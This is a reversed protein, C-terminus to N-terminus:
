NQIKSKPNQIALAKAMERFVGPWDGPRQQRFLRMTPYWPTDARDVLWRWDPSYNLALWVPAALAGALHAVATDVAIVLDLNRIIAATDMFAGSFEDVLGGFSIVEFPESGRSQVKSKPSQVKEAAAGKQLSILRVGPVRALPEFEELTASRHRDWPHRANGQWAIGVRFGRIPALQRRWHEILELDAWLYPVEGPINHERTGLILPLSMLPAQVDFKPPAAGQAILQDIGPCTALIPLLPKQCQVIVRGGFTKVIPAYRVFHLTDGLGQEAYLVITRGTLPSGDWVPERYAPGPLTRPCRWRWEYAPWGREFDGQLLWLLSRNWHADAYDSKLEIAHAYHAHAEDFRRMVSVAAGLSNYAEAFDPQTEVGQRLHEIARDVDGRAILAVGLNVHAKSYDPRLELARNYCAIAEDLQGRDRLTNGLNQHVEPVDPKFALAKRYCAEAEDHKQQEGLVFGCNVLAEVHDPRLALCQRYAVEAEAWKEQKLLANAVHFHGEPERPEIEAAQKFCALAEATRLQAQCLNGLVFWVRGNRPERQLIRRYLEEARGLEGSQHAQWASDFSDPDPM